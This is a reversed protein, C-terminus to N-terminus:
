PSIGILCIARLMTKSKPVLTNEIVGLGVSDDGSAIMAAWRHCGVWVKQYRAALQKSAVPQRYGKM